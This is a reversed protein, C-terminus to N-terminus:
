RTPRSPPCIRPVLVRIRWPTLLRRFSFFFLTFSPPSFSFSSPSHAAVLRSSTKLRSILAPMEFPALAMTLSTRTQGNLLLSGKDDDEDDDDDNDDNDIRYTGTRNGPARENCGPWFRCVGYIPPDREFLVAWEVVVTSRKRTREREVVSRVHLM